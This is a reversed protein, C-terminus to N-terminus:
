VLAAAKVLPYRERTLMPASGLEKMSTTAGEGQLEELRLRFVKRLTLVSTLDDLLAPDTGAATDSAILNFTGAIELEILRLACLLDKCDLDQFQEIPINRPTM